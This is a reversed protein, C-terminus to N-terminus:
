AKIFIKMQYMWRLILFILIGQITIILVPYYGDIWQKFGYFFTNVVSDFVIYEGLFYAMLSNMGYVKLWGLGRVWGKIDICFYFLGMLLFCIGSAFLTMSSSWIHKIIPIWPSMVLAVIILVVGIIMLKLFKNSASSNSRLIYGAMHGSFVTAVFNLSSMIWTYHYTTDWTWNDGNWVVGDRFRGLIVKDIQECINANITFDMNGWLAFITIYTVFLLAVVIIQTRLSTFVYLFTVVVYGVAISQLTNCFLHLQKLDFALLNGQIVVGLIWLIIFRKLIRFYFSRDVKEKGIKYKSMTFPITIGSMFMFLPMIIDWFCFGEWPVHTVQGIVWAGITSEAPKRILLWEYIIPQILVLCALDLGRLIDLSLLRKPIEANTTTDVSTKM